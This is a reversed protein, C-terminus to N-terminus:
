FTKVLGPLLLEDGRDGGRREHGGMGDAKSPTPLLDAVSGPLDGDYGPGKWDRAASASLSASGDQGSTVLGSTRLEYLSGGATM